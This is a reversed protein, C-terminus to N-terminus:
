QLGKEKRKEIVEGVDDRRKKETKMDELVLHSTKIAKNLHETGDPTGKHDFAREYDFLFDRMHQTKTYDDVEFVKVIAHQVKELLKRIEIAQEPPLTRNEASKLAKEYLEGAQKIEAEIEKINFEM